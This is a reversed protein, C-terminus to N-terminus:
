VGQDDVYDGGGRGKTHLLSQGADQGEESDARMQNRQSFLNQNLCADSFSGRPPSGERSIGPLLVSCREGHVSASLRGIRRASRAGHASGARIKKRSTMAIELLLPPRQESFCGFIM